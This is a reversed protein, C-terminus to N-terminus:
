QESKMQLDSKQVDVKNKSGEITWRAKEQLVQIHPAGWDDQSATAAHIHSSVFLAFVFLLVRKSTVNVHTHMM